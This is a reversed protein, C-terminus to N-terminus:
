NNFIYDIVSHPQPFNVYLKQVFIQDKKGSIEKTKYPVLIQKIKLFIGKLNLTQHTKLDINHFYKTQTFKGRILLLDLINKVRVYHEENGYKTQRM